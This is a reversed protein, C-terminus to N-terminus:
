HRASKKKQDRANRAVNQPRRKATQEAEEAFHVVKQATEQAAHVVTAAIQRVVLGAKKASEEIEDRGAEAVQQIGSGVEGAVRGSAAAAGSTQSDVETMAAKGKRTVSDIRSGLSKTKM